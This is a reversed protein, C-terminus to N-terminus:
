NLLYHIPHNTKRNELRVCCTRLAVTNGALNFVRM